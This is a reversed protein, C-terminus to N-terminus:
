YCVRKLPLGALWAGRRTLQLANCMSIASTWTKVCAYSAGSPSTHARRSFCKIWRGCRDYPASIRDRQVHVDSPSYRMPIIVPRRISIDCYLMCWTKCIIRSQMQSTRRNSRVCWHSNRQGAFSWRLYTAAYAVGRDRNLHRLRNIPLWITRANITIM